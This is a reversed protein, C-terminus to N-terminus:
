GLSVKETFEETDGIITINNEDAGWFLQKELKLWNQWKEERSTEDVETCVARQIENLKVNIQKIIDRNNRVVHVPLLSYLFEHPIEM